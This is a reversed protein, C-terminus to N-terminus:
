TVSGTPRAAAIPQALEDAAVLANDIELVTIARRKSRAILIRERDVVVMLTTTASGADSIMGLDPICLDLSAPEDNLPSLREACRKLRGHEM